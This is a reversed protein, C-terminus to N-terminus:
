LLPLVDSCGRHWKIGKSVYIMSYHLVSAVFCKVDCRNFVSRLCDSPTIVAMLSTYNVKGNGALTKYDCTCITCMRIFQIYIGM